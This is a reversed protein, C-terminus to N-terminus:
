AGPLPDCLAQILIHLAKLQVAVRTDMPGQMPTELTFVNISLELRCYNDFSLQRTLRMYWLGWLPADILGEETKLLLMRIEQEVPFGSQRVTEIIQRCLVKDPRAYQYMYFGTAEPDEHLNVVLDFRMQGVLTRIARAKVSEFSSFDRNIDTGNSNFRLNRTWGWPNLLPLIHFEINPYRDPEADLARIFALVTEVGGPENGHIGSTILVRRVPNKKAKRTIHWLPHAEEEPFPKVSLSLGSSTTM